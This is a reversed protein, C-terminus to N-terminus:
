PLIEFREQNITATEGSVDTTIQFCCGFTELVQYTNGLTVPAHQSLYGTPLERLIVKPKRSPTQKPM